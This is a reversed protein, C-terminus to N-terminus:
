GDPHFVGLDVGLPLLVVPRGGRRAMAADRMGLSGATVVTALRMSTAVTWRGGRGLAAGYGIEPLAVLEGGMVSVVSPRRLIRGAVAAIAGPEDAWFGHVLDFPRRHHRRVVARLGRALVTARGAAGGGGSGSASGLARVSAGALRYPPRRAPHRLAVVEVEHVAALREVLDVLAALGPEDREVPFGPVVIAVRHRRM